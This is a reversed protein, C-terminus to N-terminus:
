RAVVLKQKSPLVLEWGRQTREITLPKYESAVPAAHVVVDGPWFQGAVTDQPLAAANLLEPLGDTHASAPLLVGKADVARKGGPQPVAMVPKRFTLAVTVVNTPEVTVADVSAVWPHLVFAATLKKELDPDLSQFTTELNALYRVEALFIERSTNPPAVCQIDVFRVAYRDRPGINRRAEDGVHSLGFLVLGAFGLTLVAVVIPRAARKRPAPPPDPNKARKM